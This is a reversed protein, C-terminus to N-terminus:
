PGRKPQQKPKAVIPVSLGIAICARVCWKFDLILPVIEMEFLWSKGTREYLECLLQLLSDEGARIILNPPHHAHYHLMYTFLSPENPNM